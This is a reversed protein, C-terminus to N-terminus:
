ERFYKFRYKVTVYGPGQEEVIIKGKTAITKEWL